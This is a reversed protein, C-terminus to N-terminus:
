PQNTHNLTGAPNVLAALHGHAKTPSLNVFDSVPKRNPTADSISILNSDEAQRAMACGRERCEPHIMQGPKAPSRKQEVHPRISRDATRCFQRWEDRNFRFRARDGRGEIHFGKKQLGRIALERSKPDLGTWDEWNRSSVSVEERHAGRKVLILMLRLESPTLNRQTEAILNFTQVTELIESKQFPSPQPLASM